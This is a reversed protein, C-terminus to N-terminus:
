EVTLLGNAVTIVVLGPLAVPDRGAGNSDAFSPLAQNSTYGGDDNVLVAAIAVSASEPTAGDLSTWPIAVELGLGSIPPSGPIRSGVGFNVATQLWSLDAPDSLGRLGGESALGDLWVEQGGFAVVAYDAGFGADAPATLQLGGLLQDTLGDQDQVAGLMSPFGVGNGYDSDILLVVANAGWEFTGEIGVLLVDADADVRMSQLENYGEGFDTAQSQASALFGLDALHGDPILAIDPEVYLEAAIRAKLAAHVARHDVLRGDFVETGPGSAFVDVDTNTHIGWRWSVDPLVGAEPESQLTLGGCEHDATVVLTGGRPELWQHVAAVADDFALTDGVANSLNNGHSAMDIRAGEIMLFFGDPFEAELRGLADLSMDVLAPQDTREWDFDLHEGAYVEMGPATDGGFIDAGGGFMLDAPLALQQEAIEETMGRDDVHATFSAPTAHQLASTTVIGTGLGLERALEVLTQVPQGQRDVGVSRNYTYVGTAMVTAAAASDTIGSPGGTRLTGRSPLDYLSLSDTAGHRYGSAADLHAPGMGDGIMLVAIRPAGQSPTTTELTISGTDDGHEGAPTYVGFPQCAVAFCLLLSPLSRSM